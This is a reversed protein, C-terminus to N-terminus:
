KGVFTERILHTGIVVRVTTGSGRRSVVAITGGHAEVIRKALTLGLGVGGTGRSRSREGRFFATFVHPLDENPIGMGQDSVEFAVHGETGTVRLAIPRGSDPSYKHANELLNDIVRRFLVPDAEVVPLDQDFSTELPREPHRARFRESAREALARPKTEELHLAFGAASTKEDVIELRTATLVDDLLAELESLDVAIEALSARATDVDGEAALELAVRIRALPTRLEHSVNALLEKEALLLGQIREAMENFARGLDGLEDSRKLDTRARLEGRGLAQAARSLQQLPRAIWRATLFAGVFIVIVGAALTLLPPVLSPRHREFRAVLLGDRGNLDFRLYTDPPPPPRGSRPGGFASPRGFPPPEGFPPRAGHSWPGASRQGDPPAPCSSAPRPGAGSPEGWMSAPLPPEVSSAVLRCQDDYLSLLVRQRQRLEDLEKKLAQPRASLATLRATLGQIDAHPPLRAVTIGIVVAAVVVLVLQVIGVAYLRWVLGARLPATM